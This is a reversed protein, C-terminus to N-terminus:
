NWFGCVMKRCGFIVMVDLNKSTVYSTQAHPFCPAPTVPGSLSWSWVVVDSFYYPRQRTRLCRAEPSFPISRRRGGMAVLRRGHAKKNAFFFKERARHHEAPWKRVLRHMASEVKNQCFYERNNSHYSSCICGWCECLFSVINTIASFVEIRYSPFTIKINFINVM